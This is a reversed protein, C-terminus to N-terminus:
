LGIKWGEGGTELQYLITRKDNFIMIAKVHENDVFVLDDLRANSRSPVVVYNFYDRLSRLEVNYKKLLPQESNEKLVEPSSFHGIYDNTLYRLWKEYNEERIIANLEDILRRIDEFTETFVEESVLFEPEVNDAPQEVEQPPSEPEVPTAANEEVAEPEANLDEQVSVPTDQAETVPASDIAQQETACAATLLLILVLMSFVASGGQKMVEM